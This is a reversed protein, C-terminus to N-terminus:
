CVGPWVSPGALSGESKMQAGALLASVLGLAPESRSEAWCTRCEVNLFSFFWRNTEEASWSSCQAPLRPQRLPLATLPM